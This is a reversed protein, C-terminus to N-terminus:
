RRGADSVVRLPPGDSSGGIDAGGNTREVFARLEARADHQADRRSKWDGGAGHPRNEGHATETKAAQVVPLPLQPAHARAFIRDFYRVTQPPDDGDRKRRMAARAAERMTEVRYGADLLMQVRYPPGDSVWRPPLFEPDHGAICALEAAFDLAEQSILKRPADRAGGGGGEQAHPQSQTQLHQANAPATPPATEKPPDTAQKHRRKASTSRKRSIAASKKLEQEIRKHTLDEHFFALIVTKERQWVPYELRTIQALQADDHPISGTAWYRLMLLLYAGHQQTTLHTTDALYDAVYLPMWPRKM